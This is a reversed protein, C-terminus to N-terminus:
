DHSHLEQSLEQTLLIKNLDEDTFDRRRFSELYLVTEEIKRLIIEPHASEARERLVDMLRSLEENLYLRLEFGDDAFSTIYHNLFEKQEQLLGSYKNNFKQIFSNYTLNDLAKLEGQHSESTRNASMNDILSQEFLVKKKVPTSPNFISSISALSKFNPVFNGWVEKSLGKNIAAILKSQAAFLEREDLRSRATKTETLLREAIKLDINNTELIAQYLRLEQGLITSSNFHEKLIKIIKDKRLANQDVIAKTLERTLVEYAFATNRKKNHKM